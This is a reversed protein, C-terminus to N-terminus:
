GVRVKIMNIKDGGGGAPVFYLQALVVTFLVEPSPKTGARETM